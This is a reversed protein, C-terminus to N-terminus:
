ALTNNDDGPSPVTMFTHGDADKPIFRPLSSPSQFLGHVRAHTGEPLNISPLMMVRGTLQDGVDRFPRAFYLIARVQRVETERLTNDPAHGEEKPMLEGITDGEERGDSRVDAGGGGGVDSADGHRSSCFESAIEAYVTSLRRCTDAELAANRGTQALARCRRLHRLAGGPDDDAERTDALNREALAELNIDGAKQFTCSITHYLNLFSRLSPPFFHGHAPHSAHTM